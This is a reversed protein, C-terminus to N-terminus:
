LSKPNLEWNNEPYATFLPPYGTLLHIEAILIESELRHKLAM